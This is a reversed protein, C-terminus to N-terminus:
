EETSYLEMLFVDIVWVTAGLLLIRLWPSHLKNQTVFEMRSGYVSVLEGIHRFRILIPGLLHGM